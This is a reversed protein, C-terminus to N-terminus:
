IANKVDSTDSRGGTGIVLFRYILHIGGIGMGIMVMVKILYHDIINIQNFFLLLYILIILNLAPIIFFSITYIYSGSKEKSVKRIRYFYQFLIIQIISLILLISWLMFHYKYVEAMAQNYIPTNELHPSLDGTKYIPAINIGYFLSGIVLSIIDTIVFLLIVTLEFSVVSLSFSKKASNKGLYDDETLGSNIRSFQENDFNESSSSIESKEASSKINGFLVNNLDSINKGCNPCFESNKNLLAGCSYCKKHEM